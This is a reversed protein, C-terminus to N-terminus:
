SCTVKLCNAGHHREPVGEEVKTNEAKNERIHVKEDVHEQHKMHSAYISHRSFANSDIRPFMCRNFPTFWVCCTERIQPFTVFQNGLQKYHHSASKGSAMINEQLLWTTEKSYGPQERPSVMINGQLLWTTERSYGRQKVLIVMNNGQFLWTTEKLYGRHKGPTAM